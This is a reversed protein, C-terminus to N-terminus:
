GHRRGMPRLRTALEEERAGFLDVDAADHVPRETGVRSAALVLVLVRDLTVEGEHACVSEVRHADRM